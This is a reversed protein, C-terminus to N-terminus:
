NVRIVLSDDSFAIFLVMLIAQFLKAFRKEYQEIKTAELQVLTQNLLTKFERINSEDIGNQCIQLLKERIYIEPNKSDM